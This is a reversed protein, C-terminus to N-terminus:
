KKLLPFVYNYDHDYDRQKLSRRRSELYLEKGVFCDSKTSNRLNDLSDFSCRLEFNDFNEEEEFGLYREKDSGKGNKRGSNKRDFALENLSKIARTLQESNLRSAMINLSKLSNNEFDLQLNEIEMKGIKVFFKQAHSRAQTSSRSGVHKQVNKWDNGYKLLAEIFRQHEEPHWRGTNFCSDKKRRRGGKKEISERANRVVVENASDERILGFIVREGKKIKPKKLKETMHETRFKKSISKFKPKESPSETKNSVQQM